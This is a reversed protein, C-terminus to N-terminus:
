FNLGVFILFSCWLPLVLGWICMKSLSFVVSLLWVASDRKTQAVVNYV